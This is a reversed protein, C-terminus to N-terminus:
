KLIKSLDKKFKKSKKLNNLEKEFLKVENRNILLRSSVDYICGDTEYFLTATKQNLYKFENAKDLFYKDFEPFGKSMASCVISLDKVLVKITKNKPM